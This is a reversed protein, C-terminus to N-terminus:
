FEFVGCIGVCVCVLCVCVSVQVYILCVRQCCAWLCNELMWETPWNACGLPTQVLQNLQSCPPALGWATAWERAWDRAADRAEDRAGAAAGAQVSDTRADANPVYM